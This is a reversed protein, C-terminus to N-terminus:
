AGRKYPGRRTQTLTTRSCIPSDSLDHRRYLSRFNTARLGQHNALNGIPVKPRFKSSPAPNHAYILQFLIKPSHHELDKPHPGM